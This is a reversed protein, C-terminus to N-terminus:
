RSCLPWSVVVRSRDILKLAWSDLVLHYTLRKDPGPAARKRRTIAPLMSSCSCCSPLLLCADGGGDSDGGCRAGRHGGAFASTPVDAGVRLPAQFLSHILEVVEGLGLRTAGTAGLGRRRGRSWPKARITKARAEQTSREGKNIIRNSTRKIQDSAAAGPSRHPLCRRLCRPPEPHHAPRPERM